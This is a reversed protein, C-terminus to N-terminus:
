PQLAALAPVPALGDQAQNVAPRFGMIYHKMSMEFWHIGVEHAEQLARANSWNDHAIRYCAVATGTRDKGYRCHVFVPAKSGFITLIKAIDADLPAGMGGLPINIYHMGAAEVAQQEAKASHGNEGDQRLDVFTKVGLDALTKFGPGVPQAGRYVHEDVKHFNPIGAATPTAAFAAQSM